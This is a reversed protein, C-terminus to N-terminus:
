GRHSRHVQLIPVGSWYEQRTFGHVSSGPLSYDMPDSLTPSSQAFESERKGKMRPLLFHCGVGTNKGPSDWPRPLRAPSGHRPDCLTLCSQWSKAAASAAPSKLSLLIKARVGSRSVWLRCQLLIGMQNVVVNIDPLCPCQQKGIVMPFYLWTSSEMEMSDEGIISGAWRQETQVDARRSSLCLETSWM